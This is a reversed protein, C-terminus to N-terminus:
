DPSSDVAVHGGGSIRVSLGPALVDVWRAPDVVGHQRLVDDAQAVLVEGAEGGLVAGKGRLGCAVHLAMQAAGFGAIALEILALAGSTDGRLRAVGARLLSALPRADQRLERELQHADREVARLLRKSAGSSAAAAAPAAAAAAAAALAARARLLLGDVRTSQVRLLQSAKVAPWAEQVRRHAAPGASEYLDVCVTVRLAFLHQASFGAQTTWTALAASARRRAETPDGAALAALAGFLSAYLQGFLDKRAGADDEWRTASAQLESVLGLLELTQLRMGLAVTCWYRAGSPRATLVELARDVRLLATPWDGLVMCRTSAFIGLLAEVLPDDLGEALAMGQELLATGRRLGGPSGAVLWLAGFSPLSRCVHSRDGAALARNLHQLVLSMALVPNVSSLGAAAAWAVELGLRVRPDVEPTPGERLKVGRLLVHGFHYAIRWVAGVGSRPLSLHARRLLPELVELAEDTRGCAFLQEAALRSLELAEEEPAGSAATLFGEASEKGRGANALAMARRRRLAREQEPTDRKTEQRWGLASGYLEAAREFALAEEAREAALLACAAARELDGSGAYHTLLVEPDRETEPGAEVAAALAAHIVRQRGQELLGIVTERIRDHYTEFREQRGSSASTLMREGVLRLLTAFGDSPVGASSLVTRAPVPRGAVSVIELLVRAEPALAKVAARLVEGLTARPAGSARTRPPEAALQLMFLPSGGAEDCLRELAQADVSGHFLAEGLARAEDPALGSVPVDVRRADHAVEALWPQLNSLLPGPEGDRHAILLLLGPARPARLAETLLAASDEDGWQADDICLVVPRSASLRGLLERFAGFARRRLEAPELEPLHGEQAPLASELERLVPFLRTLAAFSRPVLQATETRALSLLHRTLGDVLPDVAKFPVAEREYCRGRLVVVSPDRARTRALFQDCLASKGYGSPGHVQACVVEGSGVLEYARALAGLQESRGIFPSFPRALAAPRLSATAGLLQLVAQGRPRAAADPHLLACCLAELEGPPEDGLEQGLAVRAEAAADLDELRVVRPSAGTLAEHLVAGVSYWDSAQTLGAGRAQEPAMYGSTGAALGQQDFRGDADVEAVLGYDLLVLRGDPTVRINSPKIDRHLKGAQHLADVALALQRVASRLRSRDLTFSLGAWRTPPANRPPRSGERWTPALGFALEDSPAALGVRGPWVYALFGCGEVLEMSISWDDGEGILDYLVVLNPHTIDRLSRFEAKLASLKAPRDRRLIKLAVREDRQLDIAEHVVGFGGRGLERVLEFRGVYPAASPKQPESPANLDISM